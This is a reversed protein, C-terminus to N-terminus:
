TMTSITESTPFTNNLIIVFIQDVKYKFNGGSFCIITNKVSPNKCVNVRLRFLEVSKTYEIGAIQNM